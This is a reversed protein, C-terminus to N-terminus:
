NRATHLEMEDVIWKLRKLADDTLNPLALTVALGELVSRMLYLDRVDKQSVRTVTLGKGGVRKLWGETELRQLAERVPTRSVGLAPALQGETIEEGPQLVGEMVALRLADYIKLRLPVRSDDNGLRAKLWQLDLPM